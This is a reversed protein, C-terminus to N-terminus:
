LTDLKRRYSRAQKLIADRESKKMKDWARYMMGIRRNGGLQKRHREYFDWHLSNFPCANDGHRKNHDYACNKCYDSMKNIYNATSVYPKSATIGGDAFQSMGRTNVIEVWEIADIYVGLYWADIEDPAVGAILAFNGTIMLRQIHHAYAHDLSANLAHHMCNMKTAGTWYYEPLTAKHRFFNKSAFDPMHAWYIGRVYERWGLVQRVFGEIQAPKIEEQRRRWTDIARKIVYVPRLLKVNLAFSLRSHFLSWGGATMADQYTGFYELCNDLFFALAEEAQDRTIPWILHQRDIRGFSAVGEKEIMRHIDSVDNDFLKPDPLPVAKDYKKRNFEDFNWRDGIPKDGDMLIAHKKRLHRYFNELRYEKKGEFFEAVENRTTIFHESDVAETDCSLDDCMRKLQQDLRYEDPLQYEFRQVKHKGVLMAINEDLSQKNRKDDLALYFVDHNDAELRAAFSRMAAFFACVKQIHHKVYDTEQRMEMMVYLISDNTQRFWSHEIDLQDGLILRLTHYQKASM